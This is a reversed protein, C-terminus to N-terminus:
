VLDKIAQYIARSEEQKITKLASKKPKGWVGFVSPGIWELYGCDTYVADVISRIAKQPSPFFLKIGIKVFGNIAKPYHNTMNTLTVGPHAVSLKIKGSYFREYLAAMLVRKSNGYIKSPKKRSSYDVDSLDFKGYTHAISGIAVIKKLSKSNEALADALRYQSIFNVNFVNNFGNECTMLPVNYIGAGLILTEAGLSGLEKVANDVAAPDLLDCRVTKIQANPYAAKIQAANKKSKEENRDVFILDHGQKALEKAVLSCLDGTSGTIAIIMYEGKLIISSKLANQLM